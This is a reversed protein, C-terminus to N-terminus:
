EAPPTGSLAELAERLARASAYRQEPDPACAKLVIESLAADANKPPPLPLIGRKFVEFAIKREMTTVSRDAPLFPYTDSNLLKYLFMGACYIDTKVISEHDRPNLEKTYGEAGNNMVIGTCDNKPQCFEEMRAYGFDGLKFHSDADVLINHQHFDRYVIKNRHCHEVALCLDIGLRVIDEQTLEGHQERWLRFPKLLEMRILVHDQDSEEDRMVAFDEISVIHPDGKLIQMVRAELSLDKVCKEPYQKIEDRAGGQRVREPAKESSIVKVAYRVEGTPSKHAIEYVRGSTGEGLVGLVEYDPWQRRILAEHDMGYRRATMKGFVRSIDQWGITNRRGSIMEPIRGM